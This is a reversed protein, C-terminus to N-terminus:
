KFKFEARAITGDVFKVVLTRCQGSWGKETKWNYQYRDSGADDTLTSAGTTALQEIADEASSTGRPHAM